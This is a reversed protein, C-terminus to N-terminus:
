MKNVYKRVKHPEISPRMVIFVRGQHDACAIAPIQIDRLVPEQQTNCMVHVPCVSPRVSPSWRVSRIVAYVHPSCHVSPGDCVQRIAMMTLLTWPRM